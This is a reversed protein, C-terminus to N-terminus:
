RKGDGTFALDGVDKHDGLKKVQQGDWTKIAFDGSFAILKGDPSFEFTGVVKSQGPITTIGGGTERTSAAAITGSGAAGCSQNLVVRWSCGPGTARTSGLCAEYAARVRDEYPLM